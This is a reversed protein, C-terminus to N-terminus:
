GGRARRSPDSGPPPAEPTEPVPSPSRADGARERPCVRAFLRFGALSLGASVLAVAVPIAEAESATGVDGAAAGLDANVILVAVANITAHAAVAPLVGGARHALWGLMLGFAMATPGRPWGHVLGFAVASLGIAFAPGTRRALARQLWGRFLLEESVAPVVAAVLLVIALEGPGEARLLDVFFEQVEPSPEAFRATVFLVAPVGAAAALAGIPLAIGPVARTGLTEEPSLGRGRTLAILPLVLLGPGALGVALRPDLTALLLAGGVQYLAVLALAAGLALPLSPVPPEDRIM